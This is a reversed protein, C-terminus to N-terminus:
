LGLSQSEETTNEDIRSLESRLHGREHEENAEGKQNTKIKKYIHEIVDQPMAKTLQTVQWQSTKHRSDVTVADLAGPVM